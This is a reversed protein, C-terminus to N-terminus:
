VILISKLETEAMKSVEGGMIGHVYCEGVMRFIDDRGEVSRLVFPVAAGPFVVVVDGLSTIIPVLGVFGKETVCMRRRLAANSYAKRADKFTRGLTRHKLGEFTMRGSEQRRTYTQGPLSPSRNTSQDLLFSFVEAYDPPCPHRGSFDKGAVLTKWFTTFITDGALESTSDQNYGSITDHVPCSQFSKLLFDALYALCKNSRSDEYSLLSQASLDSSIHMVKDLVICRMALSKGDPNIAISHDARIGYGSRYFGTVSTSFGLPVMRSNKSWDPVWSPLTSQSDQPAYDLCSFICFVRQLSLTLDSDGKRKRDEVWEINERLYLAAVECFVDNVSKTYNPTISAQSLALIGYVKDRPDTAQSARTMVLHNLLTSISGSAVSQITELQLSDIDVVVHCGMESDSSSLDGRRDLWPLLESDKVVRCIFSLEDWSMTVGKCMVHANHSLAAEQITWVRQFWPRSFLSGLTEEAKSSPCGLYELTEQLEQETLEQSSINAYQLRAAIRRLLEFAGKDPSAGLWIVTSYARRYILAMLQVQAEKELLDNQNICLQDVWLLKSEKLHRLHRLASDLAPTIYKTQGNLLIKNTFEPKGWVYSLATYWVPEYSNLCVAHTTHRKFSDANYQYEFEISLPRLSCVLDSAFDGPQIELVRISNSDLPEYLIGTSPQDKSVLGQTQTQSTQQRKTSIFELLEEEGINPSSVGSTSSIELSKEQLYYGELMYNDM